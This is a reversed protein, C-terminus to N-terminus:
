DAAPAGTAAPGTPRRGRAEPARRADDSGASSRDILASSPSRVARGLAVLLCGLGIVTLMPGLTLVALAFPAYPPEMGASFLRRTVWLGFTQWGQVSILLYGAVILAFSTPRTPFRAAALSRMALTIPLLALTLYHVWSIPSLVISACLMLGVAWEYSLRRANWLVTALLALALAASLPLALHGAEVPPPTIMGIQGTDFRAVM